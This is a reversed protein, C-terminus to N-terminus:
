YPIGFILLGQCEGCSFGLPPKGQSVAAASLFFSGMWPNKELILLFNWLKAQSQKRKVDIKTISFSFLLTIDM